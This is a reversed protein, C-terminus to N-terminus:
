TKEYLAVLDRNLRAIDYHAEVHARGKSGMIEWCDPHDALYELRETLLNVDSEPVLFGTERDRVVEPIGSHFTSVVPLGTAQAEILSVPTGEQDGNAATVSPLLFVHAAE